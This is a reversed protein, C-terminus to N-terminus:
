HTSEYTEIRHCNSCLVSCKEIEKLIRGLGWFRGSSISGEKDRLHHFDLVRFDNVGCNQCGMFSKYGSLFARKFIFQNKNRQNVKAKIEEANRLYHARCARKHKEIDRM